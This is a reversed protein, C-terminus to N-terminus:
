PASQGAADIAAVVGAVLKGANDIQGRPRPL